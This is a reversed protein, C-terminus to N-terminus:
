RRKGQKIRRRMDWVARIILIRIQSDFSFFSHLQFVEFKNCFSWRFTKPVMSRRHEFSRKVTMAIMLRLSDNRAALSWQSDLTFFISMSYFNKMGERGFKPVVPWVIKSAMVWTKFVVRTRLTSKMGFQSRVPEPLMETTIVRSIPGNVIIYAWIPLTRFKFLDKAPYMVSKATKKAEESVKLEQLKADWYTQFAARNEPWKEPPVRLATAMSSFEKYVREATM